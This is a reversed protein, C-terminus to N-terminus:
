VVIDAILITGTISAVLTLEGVAVEDEIIV